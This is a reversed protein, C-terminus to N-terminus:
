EGEKTIEEQEEEQGAEDTREPQEWERIADDEDYEQRQAM